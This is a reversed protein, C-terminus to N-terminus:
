LLLSGLWSAYCWLGSLLRLGGSWNCTTIFPMSPGSFGLFQGGGDITPVSISYDPYLGTRHSYVEGLYMSPSTASVSVAADAAGSAQVGVAAAPAALASALIPSMSLPHRASRRVSTTSPSAVFPSLLPVNDSVNSSISVPSSVRLVSAHDLAGRHVIARRLLSSLLM